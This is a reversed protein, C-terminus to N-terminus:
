LVDRISQEVVLQPSLNYTAAAQARHLIHAYTNVLHHEGRKVRQALHHLLLNIAETGQKKQAITDAFGIINTPTQLVHQLKHQLELGVESYYKATGPCGHCLTVLEDLMDDAIEPLLRMAVRKTESNSLPQMVLQRCRSIITPLLRPLSHSILLFYIHPRPEELNKLLANAAEPTLNDASDVILVRNHESALQVNALAKRVSDIGISMKGDEPAVIQFEACSGAQIQAYLPSTTNLNLTDENAGPGCILRYAMTEAVLRKGIGQPGTFLM